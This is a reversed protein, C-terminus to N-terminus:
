TIQLLFGRARIEARTPAAPAACGGLRRTWARWLAQDPGGQRAEPPRALPRATVAAAYHQWGSVLQDSFALAPADDETLRALARAFDPLRAPATRTVEAHIAAVHTRLEPISRRLRALLGAGLADLLPRDPGPLFRAPAALEAAPAAPSGDRLIRGLLLSVRGRVEDGLGHRAVRGAAGVAAGIALGALTELLFRLRKFALDPDAVRPEELTPITATLAREHRASTAAVYGELTEFDDHISLPAELHSM